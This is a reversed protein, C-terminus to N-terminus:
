STESKKAMYALLEAASAPDLERARQAVREWIIRKTSEDKQRWGTLEDPTRLCGMCWGKAEDMRCVSICPSPVPEEQALVQEAKHVLWEM